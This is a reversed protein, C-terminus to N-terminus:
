TVTEVGRSVLSALSRLQGALSAFQAPSLAQRGDSLAREPSPHVELMVGDAGAAVAARAMPAVSDRSGTAHSPDVFIPLHSVRRVAPIVSLDLTFRSHSSFTRIGRECLVVRGNGESIVYEASLLLDELSASMGRKLFVPRVSRGVRKLLAFNQMNRAGIQVVDAYEEVLALSREDVAETIVPLGTEERASALMRLGDEGLGQFSYPSSRPKYAGGRLMQAGYSKLMRAVSLIQEENEVACPGAVLSFSGGGVHVSGVDFRTDIPKAERSVLKYPRTVPIAEAVGPLHAFFTPDLPASNGTIGVVTRETGRIPHPRFGLDEILRIVRDLDERASGKKMVILM